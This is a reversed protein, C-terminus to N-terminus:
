QLLWFCARWESIFLDITTKMWWNRETINLFCTFSPWVLLTEQKRLDPFISLTLAVAQFVWVVEISVWTLIQTKSLSPKYSPEEWTNLYRLGMLEDSSCHRKWMHFLHSPRQQDSILSLAKIFLNDILVSHSHSLITIYIYINKKEGVFLLM